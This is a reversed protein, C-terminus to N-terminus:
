VNGREGGGEHAPLTKNEDAAAFIADALEMVADRESVLVNARCWTQVTQFQRALPQVRLLTIADASHMSLWLTILAIELKQDGVADPIMARLAAERDISWPQLLKRPRAETVSEEPPWAFASAFARERALHAALDPDIDPTDSPM